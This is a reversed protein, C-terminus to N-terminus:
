GQRGSRRTIPKGRGERLENFMHFYNDGYSNTGTQLQELIIEREETSHDNADVWQQFAKFNSNNYWRTLNRKLQTIDVGPKGPGGEKASSKERRRSVSRGLQREDTQVTEYANIYNLMIEYNVEIWEGKCMKHLSKLTEDKDAPDVNEHLFKAADEIQDDNLLTFLYHAERHAETWEEERHPAKMDAEDEDFLRSRTGGQDREREQLGRFDPRIATSSRGKLVPEKDMSVQQSLERVREMEGRLESQREKIQEVNQKPQVPSRDSLLPSSSGFTAVSLLTSPIGAMISDFSSFPRSRQSESQQQGSIVGRDLEKNQLALPSFMGMDGSLLARRQGDNRDGSKPTGDSNLQDSLLRHPTIGFRSEPERPTAPSSAPIYDGTSRSGKSKSLPTDGPTFRHSTKGAGGATGVRGFDPTHSPGWAPDAYMSHSGPIGYPSGDYDDDEDEDDNKDGWEDDDDDGWFDGYSLDDDPPYGRMVAIHRPRVPLAPPAIPRVPYNYVPNVPGQDFAGGPDLGGNRFVQLEIQAQIIFQAFNALREIITFQICNQERNPLPRGTGDVFNETYDQMTLGLSEMQSAVLDIQQVVQLSQFQGQGKLIYNVNQQLSSLSDFLDAWKIDKNPNILEDPYADTASELIAKINAMINITKQATTSFNYAIQPPLNSLSNQLEGQPQLKAQQLNLQSVKKNALILDSNLMENNQKQRLQNFTSHTKNTKIDNDVNRKIINLVKKNAQNLNNTTDSDLIKQIRKNM